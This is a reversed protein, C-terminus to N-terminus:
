IGMGTEIVKGDPKKKMYSPINVLIEDALKDVLRRKIYPPIMIISIERVPVQGKISKIMDEQEVPISLTALEPLFTIGQRHEVIRRLSEISSSEYRFNDGFRYERGKNCLYEVQNRFCNGEVLLWLDEVSLNEIDIFEDQYLPHKESVYLFFKEYFLPRADIGKYHVPTAIIGADIDGEKLDKIIQETTGERILLNIEPYSENFQDIFVPILYPAVTPIVGVTLQGSIESAFSEAMDEMKKVEQIIKKAQVLLQEGMETPVVPKKSRDFLILGFEEELKKVQITLAPQTVNSKEAAKVYSDYRALSIIYKLQAITM